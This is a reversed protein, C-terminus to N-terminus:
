SLGGQGHPTPGHASDGLMASARRGRQLDAWAPFGSDRGGSTVEFLAGSIAFFDNGNLPTDAPKDPHQVSIRGGSSPLASSHNM